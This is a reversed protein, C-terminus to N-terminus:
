RRRMWFNSTDIPAGSRELAGGAHEVASEAKSSTSGAACAPPTRCGRQPEATRAAYLQHSSRKGASAEAKMERQRHGREVLFIGVDAEADEGVQRRRLPQATGARRLPIKPILKMPVESGLEDGIADGFIREHQRRRMMRAIRCSTPQIIQRRVGSIVTCQELPVAGHKSASARDFMSSRYHPSANRGVKARTPAPHSPIETSGRVAVGSGIM